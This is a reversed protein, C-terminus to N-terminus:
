RNKEGVNQRIHKTGPFTNPGLFLIQDWSFYKTRPFTHASVLYGFGLVILFGMALFLSQFVALSARVKPHATEAIYVGLFTKM